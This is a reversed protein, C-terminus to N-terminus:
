NWAVACTGSARGEEMVEDLMAAFVPTVVRRDFRECALRRARFGMERIADPARWAALIAQTLADEDGPPTVFGVRYERALRVVEANEAMMAIFPRGAALIGYVKSPVLCGAVGASLPIIHLDGAGLSEALQERPLYPMFSVNTLRRERAQRMLWPKRAGEGILVFAIRPESRLREAAASVVELQQSLGINGSYMVVFKSGFQRRFPNDKLPRVLDCDVWDPVVRIREPAVGKAILRLHMDQGLVVTRDAWRYALRSGSELVDLLVRNKLGGTAKAIDPYLDRVNYVLRCNWRRKLWVGVTGLLPPDTAAIVIDAPAQCQAAIVALSYYTGLNVLRFPLFRKPLRTGWTRVLLTSGLKQRKWLSRPRDAVHYSPGAIVTVEHQTSLDECL